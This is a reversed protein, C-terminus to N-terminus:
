NTIKKVFVGEVNKQTVFLFNEGRGMHKALLSVPVINHAVTKLSARSSRDINLRYINLTQPSYLLLLSEHEPGLSYSGGLSIEPVDGGGKENFIKGARDNGGSIKYRYASGDAFITLIRSKRDNFFDGTFFGEPKNVEAQANKFLLTKAKAAPGWNYLAYKGENADALVISKMTQIRGYRCGPCDVSYQVPASAQARKDYLALKVTNGSQILLGLRKDDKAPFLLEADLLKGDYQFYKRETKGSKLDVSLFQLNKRKEDNLYFEAKQEPDFDYFGNTYNAFLPASYYTFQGKGTSTLFELSRNRINIMPLFLKESFNKPQIFVHSGSGIALAFDATFNTLPSIFKLQRENALVLLCDAHGLRLVQFDSITGESLYPVAPYFVANYKQFLIHMEKGNATSYAIDPKGDHNFDGFSLAAVPSQLIISKKASYSHVSDGFVIEFSTNSTYTVDPYGDKNVDIICMNEPLIRYVLSRVLQFEGRSNNHYYHVSGSKVDFGVFDPYSDGNIDGVAATSFNRNREQTKNRWTKNKYDVTLIGSFNAGFGLVERNDDQDVDVSVLDSPVTALKFTTEIKFTHDPLLRVVGALKSQSSVFVFQSDHSRNVPVIRTIKYPLRVRFKTIAINSDSLEILEANRAALSWALCLVKGPQEQLLAINDASIGLENSTLRLFNNLPIQATTCWTLILSIVISYKIPKIGRNYGTTEEQM